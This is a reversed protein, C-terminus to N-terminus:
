LHWSKPNWLCFKRPNQFGSFVIHNEPHRHYFSPIRSELSFSAPIRSWFGQGKWIRNVLTVTSDLKRTTNIAWPEFLPGRSHIFQGINVAHSESFMFASSVQWESTDVKPDRWLLCDLPLLLKNHTAQEFLSPLTFPSPILSLLSNVGGKERKRKEGEGGRRQVLWM